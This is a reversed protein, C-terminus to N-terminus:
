GWGDEVKVGRELGRELVRKVGGVVRDVWWLGEGGGCDVGLDWM